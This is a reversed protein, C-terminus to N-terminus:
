QDHLWDDYLSCFEEFTMPEVGDHECQEVYKKYKEAVIQEYIM